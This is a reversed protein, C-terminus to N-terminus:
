GALVMDAAKEAIMITPANTNGGVITPMISADVIRLGKLGHVRLTHDVVAMSDNGMKCTGVPHYMAEMNLRIHEKIESISHLRDHPRYYNSFFPKFSKSHLLKAAVKYGEIMALMDEEAALYNPNILPHDKHNTSKLKLEGVSKPKVLCPAITFGDGGPKVFGHEILFAPCFFVQMDPTPLEPRTKVFGCAEAISSTLPGRRLVFYKFYNLWNEATDLTKGKALRAAIVVFPHDRLNQGVGPLDHKVAIGLERLHAAPGIGSLMLLQPSNIAGASLIVEKNALATVQQGNLDYTVGVVKKGDMDISLVMANTVIKLNTRKKAIPKIYADSASNRRGKKITRQFLGFGDQQAANFDPNQPFGMEQSSQLFLKSMFNPSNPDSVSLLGGKGHYESEGRQQDESKKFYPLVDNYGWGPNGLAQWENYDEKNGRIYIMANISSSGGLVKGRPMFVRRGLLSDQATSYYGWDFQTRFLKYFAAPINFFKNKDPGGAELLLVSNSPNESLRNAMVCGASGGGVIIYDYMFLCKYGLVFKVFAM